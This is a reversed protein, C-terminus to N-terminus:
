LRQVFALDDQWKLVAFENSEKKGNIQINHKLYSIVYAKSVEGTEILLKLLEQRKKNSLSSNWAVSYGYKKLKSESARDSFETSKEHNNQILLVDSEELMLFEERTLPRRQINLPLVIEYIENILNLIEYKSIKTSNVRTLIETTKAITDGIIKCQEDNIISYGNDLINKICLSIHKLDEIQFKLTTNQISITVLEEFNKNNFFNSMALFCAKQGKESNLYSDMYSEIMKRFHQDM